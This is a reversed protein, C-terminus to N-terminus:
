RKLIKLVFDLFLYFEGTGGVVNYTFSCTHGHAEITETKKPGPAIYIEVEKEIGNGHGHDHGGGGHGHSHDGHAFCCVIAITLLVFLSKM